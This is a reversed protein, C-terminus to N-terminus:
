GRIRIAIFLKALNLLVNPVRRVLNISPQRKEVIEVPLELLRYDDRETRIVLESAFLDKDVLCQAVVPLIRERNFAKLGHTDTGKFGLFVRLLTTIVISAHHRLVPRKDNSEAHLKSGVVFDCQDFVLAELARRYFGVDLIDIEDCIVYRGRAHEIGMRMAAGYNPAGYRLVKVNPFKRELSLAVEPTRDVSGNECILIEYSFDFEGMRSVLEVVSGYVIAEENYVPIVISVLPVEDKINNVVSGKEQKTM